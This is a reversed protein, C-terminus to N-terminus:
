FIKIGTGIPGLDFPNGLLVEVGRVISKRNLGLGLFVPSIGADKVGQAVKVELSLVVVALSSRYIWM